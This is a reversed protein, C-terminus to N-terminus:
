ECLRWDGRRQAMDLHLHDDHAANSGPGLVTTFFLCASGRAASQFALAMDGEHPAVAIESGDDFGFGAIDIASGTGHESPKPDDAGTGIRDRCVHGPGTDIRTLRPAGPLAAAAPMLAQDAWLAFARAADCRLVPEGPLAIENLRRVRIPAEIRCGREGQPPLRDFAAGLHTLALLCAETEARTPPLIRNVAAATEADWVPGFLAPGADEAPPSTDPRPPREQAALPLGLVAACALGIAAATRGRRM